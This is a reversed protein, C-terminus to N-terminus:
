KLDIIEDFLEFKKQLNKDFDNKYSTEVNYKKKIFKGYDIAVSIDDVVVEYSTIIKNIKTNDLKLIEKTTPATHWTNNDFLLADGNKYGSDKLFFKKLYNELFYNIKVFKKEENFIKVPESPFIGIKIIKSEYNNFYFIIKIIKESHELAKKTFGLSQGDRHLRHSYGNATIEFFNMLFIKKFKSKLFNIVKESIISEILENIKSVKNHKMRFIQNQQFNEGIHVAEEFFNINQLIQGRILKVRDVTLVGKLLHNM